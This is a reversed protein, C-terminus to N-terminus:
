REPLHGQVMQDLAAIFRAPNALKQASERAAAIEAEVPQGMRIMLACIRLRCQCEEFIQGGGQLTHLRHQQVKLAQAYEGQLEHFATHAEYYNREPSSTLNKMTTLSAIYFHKAGEVDGSQRCALAQWAQFEAIVLTRNSKKSLKEGQAALDLLATWDKKRYALECLYIYASSSHHAEQAPNVMSLYTTAVESLSEYNELMSLFTCRMEQLCFRCDLDPTIEAAMYDLSEQIASSYGDPDSYIYAGILDEHLCIRQPFEAYMPKRAEVAAKVALELAANLDRKHYILTQLQWHDHLLAWWAEGFQEALERGHQYLEIAQDPNTDRYPSAKWLCQCMMIKQPNGEARIQATSAYIWDWLTSM